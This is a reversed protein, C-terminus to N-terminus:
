DTEDPDLDALLDPDPDDSADAPATLSGSPGLLSEEANAPRPAVPQAGSSRWEVAEATDRFELLHQGDIRQLIDRVEGPTAYFFERRNNVRNVRRADLEQHLRTELGVADQSFILAHVDFRFPVSADGLERVRDMPELRRTMGVKVMREGFAGINSIVYVYGARINAAREEVGSIASDVEELKARIVAAGATDGNAELQALATQYHTREKDLRARERAIEALLKREEREQERQERVAEREEEVKQLYDATLEIETVRLRHYEPSVRITMTRGLKEITTVAKNLREITQHRTYPKVTRVCNDAEANYARLMLKSYERVMRRGEAASGNVTWGTAGQIAGGDAKAAEKIRIRLAALRDKYAVANALPHAYEYLGVEQLVATEDLAVIQAQLSAAQGALDAVQARAAALEGHTRTIQERVAELAEAARDREANLALVDGGGLRQVMERLEEAEAEAVRARRGFLPLRRHGGKGAEAPPPVSAGPVGPPSQPAASAAEPGPGLAPMPTGNPGVPTPPQPAAFAAAETQSPDTAADDVWYKWGPPAPPWRPDPQWGAPPSWGAPPVPWGPAPNFRLAM